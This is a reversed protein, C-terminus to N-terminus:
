IWICWPCTKVSYSLDTRYLLVVKPMKVRRDHKGETSSPLPWVLTVRKVSSISVGFLHPRAAYGFRGLRATPENSQYPGPKGAMDLWEDRM